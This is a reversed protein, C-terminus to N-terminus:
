CGYRIRRLYNFFTARCGGGQRSFEQARSEQTTYQPDLLLEVALSRRADTEDSPLVLRWDLGSQKLEEARTYLRLSPTRILPLRQGIWELIEQDTFWSTAHQHVEVASPEFRLVHGRDEVAAVNRNITRWDNSIIVVKSRTTFLRPIQEAKLSTASTTWTVQKEDETDCLSKLLRIGSKDTHLADVDNIVVPLDRHLYLEKYIQFPSAEGQVWCVNDPLRAKVTRSKSLGHSGVLILLNLHGSSFADVFSELERYTTIVLGYDSNSRRSKLPRRRPM